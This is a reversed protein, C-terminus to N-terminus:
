GSFDALARTTFLYNNGEAATGDYPRPGGRALAYCRYGLPAFVEEQARAPGTWFECVVSPRFRKLTETMGRLVEAETTETDIKVLDVTELREAHAFSDISVVSVPSTEMEPLQRKLERSLTAGVPVETAPHYIEAEGDQEGVAKNICRVNELDNLEVNRRLREFSQPMPEFAYVTSAPNAHASLLAYYGVHAGVDLVVRAQAALRFFVPSTEPEYGHWERWFVQNSVWDDGRSTLRLVRGNPLTSKVEGTRPLHKVAFESRAGFLTKVTTTAVHNFPRSGRVWKAFKKL